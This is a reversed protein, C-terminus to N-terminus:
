PPDPTDRVRSELSRMLANLKAFTQDILPLINRRSPIFRLREAIQLQTDLEALSGRAITFFGCCTPM